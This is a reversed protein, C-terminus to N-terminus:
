LMYCSRLAPTQGSPYNGSQQNTDWWQGGNGLPLGTPKNAGTNNPDLTEWVRGIVIARAIQFAM